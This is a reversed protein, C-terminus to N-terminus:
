GRYLEPTTLLDSDYTDQASAPSYFLEGTKKNFEQEIAAFTYRISDAAHSETKHEPGLYDGTFPNFKRKYLMLKRRLEETTVENFETGPLSEVVRKIGDERPERLLLSSNILGYERIKEIRTIADSDRVAGDHPFFHWALNYPKSQVFKVIPENGIDHTEHYDIIRPKRNILQFFTIATSDAM